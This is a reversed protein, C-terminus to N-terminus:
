TRALVDCSTICSWNFGCKNARAKNDTMTGTVYKCGALINEAPESRVLVVLRPTQWLKPKTNM